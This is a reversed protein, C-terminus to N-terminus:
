RWGGRGTLFNFFVAIGLWVVILVPVGFIMVLLCLLFDSM